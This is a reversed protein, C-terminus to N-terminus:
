KASHYTRTKVNFTLGSFTMPVTVNASRTKTTQMILLYAPPTGDSEGSSSRTVGDACRTLHFTNQPASSVTISVSRWM